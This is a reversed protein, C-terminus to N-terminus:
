LNRLQIQLLLFLNIEDGFSWKTYYWYKCSSERRRYSLAKEFHPNGFSIKIKKYNKQNKKQLKVAVKTTLWFQKVISIAVFEVKYQYIM